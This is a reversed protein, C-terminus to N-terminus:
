WKFTEKDEKIIKEDQIYPTLFWDYRYMFAMYRLIRSYIGSIKYFYESIERMTKVDYNSIAQLVKEKSALEPNAQRLDGLKLIADDLTKAGIRIKSFDVTPMGQYGTNNQLADGERYTRIVFNRSGITRDRM